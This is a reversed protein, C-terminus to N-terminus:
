SYASSVSFLENAKITNGESFTICVPFNLIKPKWLGLLWPFSLSMLFQLYAKPLKRMALTLYSGVIGPHKCLFESLQM